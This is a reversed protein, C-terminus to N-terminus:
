PPTFAVRFTFSRLATAPDYVSSPSNILPWADDTWRAPRAWETPGNAPADFDPSGTISRRDEPAPLTLDFGRKAFWTRIETGPLGRVPTDAGSGYYERETVPGRSIYCRPRRGNAFDVAILLIKTERHVIRKPYGLDNALSGDSEFRPFQRLPVIRDGDSAVGVEFAHEIAQENGARDRAVIRHTSTGAGRGPLEISWAGKTAPAPASMTAPLGDVTLSAVGSNDGFTGRLVIPQQPPVITGKAPADVLVQPPQLDLAVDFTWDNRGLENRVNLAVRRPRGEQLDDLRLSADTPLEQDDVFVRARTGTATFQVTASSSRVWLKGDRPVPVKTDGTQLLVEAFKPPEITCRVVVSKKPPTRGLVDTTAVDITNDGRVIDVAGSFTGPRAPDGALAFTRGGISATAAATGLGGECVVEAVLRDTPEIPLLRFDPPSPLRAARLEAVAPTCGAKAAGLRLTVVEGSRELPLRATFTGDRAITAAVPQDNCTVECDPESLRGQVELVPEATFAIGFAVVAKSATPPQPFALPRLPAAEYEVQVDPLEIRHGDVLEAAVAFARPGPALEATYRGDSGRVAQSGAVILQQVGVVDLRAAFAIPADRRVQGQPSLVAFQERVAAAVEARLRAQADSWQADLRAAQQLQRLAPAFQQQRRRQDAAGALLRARLSGNERTRDAAVAADLAALADDYQQLEELAAVNALAQDVAEANGGNAPPQEPKDGGRAALWAVVLAAVLAVAAPVALRRRAQTSLAARQTGLDPPTTQGGPGPTVVTPEVSPPPPAPAPAPPPTPQVRTRNDERLWQKIQDLKQLPPSIMTKAETLVSRDRLSARPLGLQALATAFENGDAFRERAEKATARALVALLADPVDGRKQRLDPFPQLVIQKMLRPFNGDRADYADEGALLFWLTAGLAWVDAPSQVATSEWQEPPMYAPTGMWGANTSLLSAGGTGLTPRALGLDAVKLKGDASILLNDPKVDRHVIGLEHAAGLGLAADHVIQVAEAVPLPGRREVRQRATEGVVLEMIIYYLGCHEAVDFVRIVNPHSIAAASQAERRFRAVYGQDDSVLHPKLVKIAVDIALNLHRGRYVAGMGGRGIRGLVVCPPLVKSGAVETVNALLDDNQM